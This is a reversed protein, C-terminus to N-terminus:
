SVTHKDDKSSLIRNLDIEDYLIPQERIPGSYSVLSTSRRYIIFQVNYIKYV